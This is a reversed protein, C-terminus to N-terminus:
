PRGCRVKVKTLGIVSHYNVQKMLDETDWDVHVCGHSSYDLPGAHLAEGGHYFVAFSMNANREGTVPDKRSYRWNKGKERESWEFDVSPTGSATGSNYGFGEIRTVTFTGADLGLRSRM